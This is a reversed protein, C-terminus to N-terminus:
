SLCSRKDVSKDFFIGGKEYLMRIIDCMVTVHM